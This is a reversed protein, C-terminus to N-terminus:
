VPDRRSATSIQPFLWSSKPPMPRSDPFLADIPQGSGNVFTM